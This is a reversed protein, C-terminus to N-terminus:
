HIDSRTIGDSSFIALVSSAVDSNVLIVVAYYEVTGSRVVPIDDDHFLIGVDGLIVVTEGPVLRGAGITAVIDDCGGGPRATRADPYDENSIGILNRTSDFDDAFVVPRQPDDEEVSALARLTV